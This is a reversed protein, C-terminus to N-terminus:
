EQAAFESAVVERLLGRLTAAREPGYVADFRTQAVRWCESAARFKAAGAPSLHLERRRRDAPSAVIEVLGDRQLPLINRGLTTRDMVLAAALTNITMPGERNLRSLIAFQTARLGTPAFLQDYFQTVHRAAQRIALCNCDQFSPQASM